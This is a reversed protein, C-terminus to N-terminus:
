EEELPEPKPMGMAQAARRVIVYGEAMELEFRRGLAAELSAVVSTSKLKLYVETPTVKVRQVHNKIKQDPLAFMDIPLEEIEAWIKDSETAEAKKEIKKQTM